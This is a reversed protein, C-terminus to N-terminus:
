YTCNVLKETVNLVHMYNEGVDMTITFNEQTVLWGLLCLFLVIVITVCIILTINEAKGM